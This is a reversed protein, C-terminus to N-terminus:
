AWFANLAPKPCIWPWLWTAERKHSCRGNGSRKLIRARKLVWIKTWEPCSKVKWDGTYFHLERVQNFICIASYQVREGCISGLSLFPPLIALRFASGELWKSSWLKTPHPTWDHKNQENKCFTDARVKGQSDRRQKVVFGDKITMSVMVEISANGGFNNLITLWTICRLCPTSFFMTCICCLFVWKCQM